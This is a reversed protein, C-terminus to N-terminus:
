KRRCFVWRTDGDWWRYITDCLCARLRCCGDSSRVVGFVHAYGGSNTVTEMAIILTEGKPQDSYQKRLEPGGWTPLLVGNVKRVGEFIEATTPKDKGTLEAGSAVVLEVSDIAFGQGFGDDEIIDRAKGTIKFNSVKFDAIYGKADDNTRQLTRWIPRREISLLRTKEDALDDLVVWINKRFDSNARALELKEKGGPYNKTVSVLTDLQGVTVPKVAKKSSASQDKGM